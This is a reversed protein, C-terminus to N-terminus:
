RHKWGESRFPEQGQRYLLALARGLGTRAEAVGRGDKLSQKKLSRGSKRRLAPDALLGFWVTRGTNWGGDCPSSTGISVVAGGGILKTLRHDLRCGFDSPM